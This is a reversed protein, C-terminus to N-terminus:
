TREEERVKERKKMNERKERVRKRTLEVGGGSVRNDGSHSQLCIWFQM